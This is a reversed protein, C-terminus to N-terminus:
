ALYALCASGSLAKGAFSCWMDMDNVLGILAAASTRRRRGPWSRSSRCGAAGVSALAAVLEAQDAVGHQLGGVLRDELLELPGVLALADRELRGVAGGTVLAARDLAAEVGVDDVEGELGVHLTEDVGAQDGLVPLVVGVLPM